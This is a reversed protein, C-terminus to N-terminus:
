RHGGNMGAQMAEMRTIRESLSAHSNASADIKQQVGEVQKALIRVEVSLERTTLTASGVASIVGVLVAGILDKLYVRPGSAGTAMVFPLHEILHRWHEAM